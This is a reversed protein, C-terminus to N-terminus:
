QALRMARYLLNSELLACLDIFKLKKVFGVGIGLSDRLERTGYKKNNSNLSYPLRDSVELWQKVRASIIQVGLVHTDLLLCVM